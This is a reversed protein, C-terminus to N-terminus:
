FLRFSFVRVPRTKGDCFNGLIENSFESAIVLCDKQRMKPLVDSSHCIPDDGLGPVPLFLGKREPDGDVFTLPVCQLAAKDINALAIVSTSGTGWWYVKRGVASELFTALNNLTDINHRRMNAAKNRLSLLSGDRNDYGMMSPAGNQLVVRLVNREEILELLSFGLDAAMRQVFHANFFLLHQHYFGCFNPVEFVIKGKPSLHRKMTSIIGKPSSFHELVHMMYFLDVSADFSSTDGFFENRILHSNKMLRFEQSPEFGEIHEYGKSVLTDLLYGDSSGIEVVYDVSRSYRVITNAMPGYKTTGIGKQPRIYRYHKYIEDLREQSLPKSNFGLGCESCLSAEFPFVQSAVTETVSCASLNTPLMIDYIVEVSNSGCYPCSINATIGPEPCAKDTM